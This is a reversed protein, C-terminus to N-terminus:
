HARVNMAIMELLLQALLAKSGVGLDQTDDDTLVYLQNQDSGFGLGAQSVDNAAIMDLTKAELKGRAYALVNDTEAAFGVTYPRNSQLQGVSSLIDPTKVLELTMRNASKKIKEKVVSVPSYDAVAAVGIFIDVGALNQHVADYMQQASEIGIRRVRSPCVLCTPGSVLIVEAGMAVAQTAIAYGMKGSSRNTLGRVPDIAEWTPGATILVTQKNLPM